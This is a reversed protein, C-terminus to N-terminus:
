AIASIPPVTRGLKWGLNTAERQEALTLTTWSKAQLQAFRTEDTERATQEATKPADPPRNGAATRDIPEITPHAAVTALMQEIKPRATAPDFWIGDFYSHYYGGVRTRYWLHVHLTLVNQPEDNCVACRQGAPVDIITTM